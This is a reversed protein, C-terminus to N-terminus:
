RRCSYFFSFDVMFYYGGMYADILTLTCSSADGCNISEGSDPAIFCYLRKKHTHQGALLGVSGHHDTCWPCTVASPMQLGAAATSAKYESILM